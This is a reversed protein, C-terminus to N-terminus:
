TRKPVLKLWRKSVLEYNVIGLIAGALGGILASGWWYGIAAGLAADTMCLLRFESHIHFFMTKTFKAVFPIFLAIGKPLWYLLVSFINQNKAIDWYIKAMQKDDLSSSIRNKEIYVKMNITFLFFMLAAGILVFTSVLGGLKDTFFLQPCAVFALAVAWSTGIAVYFIVGLIMVAVIKSVLLIIRLEEKSRPFGNECEECAEKWATKAAAVVTKFEYSLYGVLGGIIIGVPIMWVHKHGFSLAIFAGIFAGLFCAVAIKRNEINKM